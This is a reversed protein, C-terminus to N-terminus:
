SVRLINSKADTTLLFPLECLSSISGGPPVAPVAVAGGGGGGILRHHLRGTSSNM